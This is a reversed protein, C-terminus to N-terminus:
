SLKGGSLRWEKVKEICWRRPKSGKIPEVPFRGDAVMRFMTRKNEQLYEALEALTLTEPLKENMLEGYQIHM